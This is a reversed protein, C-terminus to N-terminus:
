LTAVYFNTFIVGSFAIDHARFPTRITCKGLSSDLNLSSVAPSGAGLNVSTV